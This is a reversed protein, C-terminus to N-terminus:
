IKIFNVAIMERTAREVVLTGETASLSSPGPKSPIGM